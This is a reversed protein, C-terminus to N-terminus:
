MFISKQCLVWRDVRGDIDVDVNRNCMKMYIYKYVTHIYVTYHIYVFISKKWFIENMECNQKLAYGVFM